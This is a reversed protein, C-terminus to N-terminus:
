ESEAEETNKYSVEALASGPFMRLVLPISVDSGLIERAEEATICFKGADEYRQLHEIKNSIFAVPEDEKFLAAVIDEGSELIYNVISTGALNDFKIPKWKTGKLKKVQIKM